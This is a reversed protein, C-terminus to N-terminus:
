LSLLEMCAKCSVDTMDQSLFSAFCRMSSMRPEFTGLKVNSVAVQIKLIFVPHCQSVVLRVYLSRKQNTRLSGSGSSMSHNMMQERLDQIKAEFRGYEVLCVPLDNSVALAANM